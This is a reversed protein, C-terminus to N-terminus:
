TISRRTTSAPSRACAAWPTSHRSSAPTPTPCASASSPSPKQLHRRAQEYAGRDNEFIGLNNLTKALGTYMTPLSRWVAIAQEYDGAAGPDGSQHRYKGRAHYLLALNSDAAAPDSRAIATDVTAIAAAYDGARALLDAAALVDPGQAPHPGSVLLAISIALVVIGLSTM